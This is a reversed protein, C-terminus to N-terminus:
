KIKEVTGYNMPFKIAIEYPENITGYGAIISVDPKLFIVPIFDYSTKDEGLSFINDKIVYPLGDKNTNLTLQNDHYLWNIDYNGLSKNDSIFLYDSPNIVGIDNYVFSSIENYYANNANSVNNIKGINFRGRLIMNKASLSLTDYYTYNAYYNLYSDSYAVNKEKNYPIDDVKSDRIIKLSKYFGLGNEWTNDFSGIIRWKECRNEGKTYGDECNFWLYNNVDSGIYRYERINSESVNGTEDIGVVGDQKKASLLEIVSTAYKYDNQTSTLKIKAQFVKGMYSANTDEKIWFKVKYRNTENTKLVVNQAIVNNDSLTSVYNYGSDNSNCSFRIVEKISDKGTEEITITYNATYDGSNTVTFSFEEFSSLAEKDSTPYSNSLLINNDSNSFDVKIDGVTLSYNNETVYSNNLVSYSTGFVMVLGFFMVVLSLFLSKNDVNEM